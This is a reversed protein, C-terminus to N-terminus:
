QRLDVGGEQALRLAGALIAGKGIDDKLTSITDAVFSTGAGFSEKAKDFFSGSSGGGFANELKNKNKGAAATAARGLEVGAVGIAENRYEQGYGAVLNSPMPLICREVVSTNKRDGGFAPFHREEYASISIYHDVADVNRPYSVNKFKIPNNLARLPGTDEKQGPERTANSARTASMPNDDLPARSQHVGSLTKNGGPRNAGSGRMFSATTGMQEKKSNFSASM